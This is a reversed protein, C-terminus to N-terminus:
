REDDLDDESKLSCGRPILYGEVVGYVLSVPTRSGSSPRKQLHAQLEDDKEGEREREKM